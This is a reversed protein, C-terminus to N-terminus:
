GEPTISSKLFPKSEKLSTLLKQKWRQNQIYGSGPKTFKRTKRKVDGAAASAGKWLM